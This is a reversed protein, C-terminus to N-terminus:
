GELAEIRAELAAISDIADQMPSLDQDTWFDKAVIIKLHEVNRSVTNAWDEDTVGKPKSSNILNVSDMAADYHSQIEEPTLELAIIIEDSM